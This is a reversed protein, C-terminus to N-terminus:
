LMRRGPQGLGRSCLWGSRCPASRQSCFCALCRALTRPDSRFPGEFRPRLRSGPLVGGRRVRRSQM